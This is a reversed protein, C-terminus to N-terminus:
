EKEDQEHRTAWNRQYQDQIALWEVVQGLQAYFSGGGVEYSGTVRGPEWESDLTVFIRVSQCHEMLDAVAKDAILKVQEPTTM